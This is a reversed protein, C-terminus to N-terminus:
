RSCNQDRQRAALAEEYRRGLEEAEATLAAFGQIDGQRQTDRAQELKREYARRLDDLPDKRGFLGLWRAM